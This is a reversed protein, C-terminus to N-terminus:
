LPKPSPARRGQGLRAQLPRRCRLSEKCTPCWRATWPLADARVRLEVPPSGSSRIAACRRPRRDYVGAKGEEVGVGEVREDLGQDAAGREHEALAERRRTRTAPPPRSGVHGVQEPRHHGDQYGAVLGDLALVVHADRERGGGRRADEVAEAFAEADLQDLAVARGLGVARDGGLVRRPAPRICPSPERRNERGPPRRARGAPARRSPPRAPAGGRRATRRRRRSSPSASCVTCAHRFRHNWM